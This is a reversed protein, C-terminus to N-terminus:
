GWSFIPTQNVTWLLHLGKGNRTWCYRSKLCRQLLSSPARIRLTQVASICKNCPYSPSSGATEKLDTCFFCFVGLFHPNLLQENTLRRFWSTSAQVPPGKPALKPLAIPFQFPLSAASLWAAWGLAKPLSARVAPKNLSLHGWAALSNSIWHNHSASSSSPPLLIISPLEVAPDKVGKCCNLM